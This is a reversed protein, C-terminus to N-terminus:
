AFGFRHLQFAWSVAAAVLMARGMRSRARDSWPVPAGILGFQRLMILPITVLTVAALGFIGPNAAAAAGLHGHVLAVAATTLGCGPCPIGTFTFLLCPAGLGTSATFMPWCAAAVAAAAGFGGLREPVSFQKRM